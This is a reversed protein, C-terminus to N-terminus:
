PIRGPQPTRALTLVFVESAGRRRLCRACAAATAGTTLVDDVLLVQKPPDTRLSFSRSSLRLREGRRRGAQSWPTHRRLLQLCVTGLSKALQRALLEAQNFGRRWRRGWWMPVPVIAEPVPWSARQWASALLESLPGALEDRRGHKFLLIAERLRGQYPGFSAAAFWPPPEVTCGLCIEANNTDPMGCIPCNLLHPTLDDWCRPCVGARVGQWPLPEQCLSCRSPLFTQIVAEALTAM